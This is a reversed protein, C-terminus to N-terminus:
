AEAVTHELAEIESTIERLRPHDSPRYFLYLGGGILGWCFPLFYGTSSILVADTERVGCLRNLFVQVLGERVGLGGLSIPMASLTNVVPMIVCLEGYTPLRM